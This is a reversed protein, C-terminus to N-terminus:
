KHTKSQTEGVSDTNQTREQHQYPYTGMEIKLKIESALYNVLARSRMIESHRITEEAKRKDNLSISGLEYSRETLDLLKKALEHKQTALALEEKSNAFQDYLLRLGNIFTRQYYHVLMLYQKMELAARGIRRSTEGANFLDQSLTLAAGFDADSSLGHPPNEGLYAKASFSPWRTWKSSKYLRTMEEAAEQYVKLEANNETGIDRCQEWTIAYIEGSDVEAIKLQSEAPLGVVLSLAMISHALANKDKQIQFEITGLATEAQLAEIEAVLGDQYKFQIDHLHRQETILDKESLEIQKRNLFVAFYSDVVSVVLQRKGSILDIKAEVLQTTANRLKDINDSNNLGSQSLSLFPRLHNSENIENKSGNDVLLDVGGQIRPWYINDADKKELDAIQMDYQLAGLDFSNELAILVCDKLSLSAASDLYDSPTETSVDGRLNPQRHTDTASVWDPVILFLSIVIGLPMVRRWASGTARTSYRNHGPKMSNDHEM